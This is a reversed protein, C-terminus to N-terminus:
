KEMRLRGGQVIILGATRQELMYQDVDMELELPDGAALASAESGAAVVRAKALVPIRDMTRFAADRQPVSWFLVNRDTPLNALLNRTEKDAGLYALALAAVVAVLIGVIWRLM